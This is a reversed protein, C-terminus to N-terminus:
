LADSAELVNWRIEEKSDPKFIAHKEFDGQLDQIAGSFLLVPSEM